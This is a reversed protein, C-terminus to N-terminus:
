MLALLSASIVFIAAPLVPLRWRAVLFAAAFLVGGMIRVNVLFAFPTPGVLHFGHATLLFSLRGSADHFDVHAVHGSYRHWAGSLNFLLDQTMAKSFMVPPSLVAWAAALVPLGALVLLA